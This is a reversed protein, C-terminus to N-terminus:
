KANMRQITSNQTLEHIQRKNDDAKELEATLKKLEKEMPKYKEIEKGLEENCRKEAKLNARLIKHNTRVITNQGTTKRKKCKVIKKKKNDNDHTYNTTIKERAKNWAM